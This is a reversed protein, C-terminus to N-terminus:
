LLLKAVAALLQKSSLLPLQNAVALHQLLHLKAALLLLQNAALNQPPSVAHLQPQSAALSQLV